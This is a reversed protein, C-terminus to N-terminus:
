LSDSLFRKKYQVEYSPVYDFNRDATPRSMKTLEMIRLQNAFFKVTKSYGEYILRAKLDLGMNFHLVGTEFTNVKITRMRNFMDTCIRDNAICMYKYFIGAMDTHFFYDIVKKYSYSSQINNLDLLSLSKSKNSSDGTIKSIMSLGIEIREKINNYKYSSDDKMKDKTDDIKIKQILEKFKILKDGLNKLRITFYNCPQDLDNTRIFTGKVEYYSLIHKMLYTLVKEYREIIRMKKGTSDELKKIELLDSKILSSLDNYVIGQNVSLNLVDVLDTKHGIKFKAREENDNKNDNKNDAPSHSALLKLSDIVYASGKYPLKFKLYSSEKMHELLIRFVRELGSINYHEIGNDVLPDYVLSCDTDLCDVNNKNYDKDYDKDYDKYADQTNTDQIDTDKDTDHSDNNDLFTFIEIDAYYLMKYVEQRIEFFLNSIEPFDVSEHMYSINLIGLFGSYVLWLERIVEYADIISNQDDILYGFIRNDYRNIKGKVTKDLHTIPYNNYIGGDLHYMGNIIPSELVWPISMTARAGDIVRMNQYKINTHSYYISEIPNTETGTFVLTKGTIKHYELFTFFSETTWGVFSLTDIDSESIYRYLQSDENIRTEDSITKDENDSENDSFESFRIIKGKDDKIIIKHRLDTKMIQCIRLIILSYWVQFGSKEPNYLGNDRMIKSAINWMGYLSMNPKEFFTDINRQSFRITVLKVAESYRGVLDAKDLIDRLPLNRIDMYEILSPTICALVMASLGGISSGAFNNLYFIQGTTLLGITAGIYINGKSGGGTFVVKELGYPNVLYSYDMDISSTENIIQNQTTTKIIHRIERSTSDKGLLFNCYPDFDTFIQTEYLIDSCNLISTILELMKKTSDTEQIKSEHLTSEHLTSQNINRLGFLETFYDTDSDRLNVSRLLTASNLTVKKGRDNDVNGLIKFMNTNEKYSTVIKYSDVVDVDELNVDELNIDMVLDMNNGEHHLDHDLNNDVSDTKYPPYSTGTQIKNDKNNVNRDIKKFYRKIKNMKSYKYFVEICKSRCIYKNEIKRCRLILFM